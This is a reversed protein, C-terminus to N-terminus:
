QTQRELEETAWQVENYCFGGTSLVRRGDLLYYESLAGVDEELILRKGEIAYNGWFATTQPTLPETSSALGYIDTQAYFRGNPLFYWQSSDRYTGKSYNLTNMKPTNFAIDTANVTQLQGFIDFVYSWSSVYTYLEGETFVQASAKVNAPNPDVPLGAVSVSGTQAPGVPTRALYPQNNQEREKDVAAIESVITQASGPEFAYSYDASEGYDNKGTLILEAGQQRIPLSKQESCYSTLLLNNGDVSYTGEEQTKEEDYGPVLSSTVVFYRGEPLFYLTEEETLFDEEHHYTWKGILGTPATTQSSNPVTQTLTSVETQSTPVNLPNSSYSQRALYLEDANEDALILENNTLHLVNYFLEEGSDLGIYLHSEDLYWIGTYSSNESSDQYIITVASSDNFSFSLSSSENGTSWQGILVAEQAMVFSTLGLLFLIFVTWKKYM